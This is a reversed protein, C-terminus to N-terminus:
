PHAASLQDHSFSVNVTLPDTDCTLQAEHIRRVGRRLEASGIICNGLKQAEEAAAISGLLGALVLTGGAALTLTASALVADGCGLADVAHSALAPVHEARLRTSWDDPQAQGVQGGDFAILGQDGLTVLASKSRTERLLCWVVASLGADFDHLADRLEVESPCLLDMESMAPLNSRRGSVDGVLLDVRERLLRCLATLTAPTMLGLGYDAIIAADCAGAADVAISALRQRGADDLTIPEGLDLKMLKSTGVLFRKKEVLPRDVEISHVAIGESILRQRLATADPTSPLATVLIPRAGMVALHRAIIAAGGDFSRYEIPRLTMVPGEGAVDPRDCMVYTDVMTEGIVLVRRGRFSDIVCEIEDLRLDHQDILRRLRAQVPSASTELADILATSSFIVDGSTFVVRGGYRHVVEREALFRPAANDEYERGKIYVDPRIRDLLEVATPLTNITVWAVCDLAALNEARLEQPILPRGPGKGVMADGTIAVLLRDGLKAAQKLHRVHGPHVIDFCGHCLAVTEGARQAARVLSEAEALAVTKDAGSV